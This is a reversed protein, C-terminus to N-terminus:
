VLRPRVTNYPVPDFNQFPNGMERALQAFIPSEVDSVVPSINGDLPNPRDAAQTYVRFDWKGPTPSLTPAPMIALTTRYQMTPAAPGRHPRVRRIYQQMLPRSSRMGSRHRGDTMPKLPVIMPIEMTTSSLDPAEIARAVMGLTRMLRPAGDDSAPAVRYCAGVPAVPAAPRRWPAVAPGYAMARGVAPGSAWGRAPAGAITGHPREGRNGLFSVAQGSTMSDRM